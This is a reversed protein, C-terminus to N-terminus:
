ASCLSLSAWAFPQVLAACVFFPKTLNTVGEEEIRGEIAGELITPGGRHAMKVM